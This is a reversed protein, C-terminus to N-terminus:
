SIGYRHKEAYLAVYLSRSRVLVLSRSRELVITCGESFQAERACRFAKEILALIIRRPSRDFAHSGFGLGRPHAPVGCTM